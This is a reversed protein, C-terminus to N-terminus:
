SCNFIATMRPVGMNPHPTNHVPWMTSRPRLDYTEALGAREDPAAREYLDVRDIHDQDEATFEGKIPLVGTSVYHELHRSDHTTVTGVHYVVSLLPTVCNRTPSSVAYFQWCKVAEEYTKLTVTVPENVGLTYKLTQQTWKGKADGAKGAFDLYEMRLVLFLTDGPSVTPGWINTLFHSGRMYTVLARNLGISSGDFTPMPDTMLVGANFWSAAYDFCEQPTADTKAKRALLYNVQAISLAEQINQNGTYDLPDRGLLLQEAYLMHTWNKLQKIGNRVPEGEDGVAEVRIPRVHRTVPVAQDVHPM